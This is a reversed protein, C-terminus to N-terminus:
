GSMATAPTSTPSTSTPSSESVPITPTQTPLNFTRVNFPLLVNSVLHITSGCAPINPQVITAISGVGEVQM